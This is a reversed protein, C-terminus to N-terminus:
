NSSLKRLRYEIPIRISVREKPKPFERSARRITELAARDLIKHGSSRVLKLNQLKGGPMLEFSVEVVGEKRGRRAIRPYYRHRVIAERIRDAYNHLYRQQYSYTKKQVSVPAPKSLSDASPEERKQVGKAISKSVKATEINKSPKPRKKVPKPTAMIKKRRIKKVRKRSKRAHSVKKPAHSVKKAHSRKKSTAVKKPAPSFSRSPTPAVSLIHIRMSRSVSVDRKRPWPFLYFIAGIALYIALALFFARIM